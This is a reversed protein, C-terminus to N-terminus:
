LDIRRASFNEINKEPSIQEHDKTQVQRLLSCLSYWNVIQSLNSTRAMIWHRKRGKKTQVLDIIQLFPRRELYPKITFYLM